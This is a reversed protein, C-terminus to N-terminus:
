LGHARLWAAGRRASARALWADQVLEALQARTLEGVRAARLLVSPHGDFHPTTFFPTSDDQILAQKDAESAVWFVIVDPYREGTMPDIADPRVHPLLHVVQRRSSLDPQGAARVLGHRAADWRRARVNASGLAPADSCWMLTNLQSSESLRRSSAVRQAEALFLHSAPGTIADPAPGIGTSHATLERGVPDQDGQWTLEFLHGDTAAYFLHQTGDPDVHTAPPHAAAGKDGSSHGILGRATTVADTGWRLEFIERGSLYFVHQSRERTYPGEVVHSVLKTEWEPAPAGGARLTLDVM